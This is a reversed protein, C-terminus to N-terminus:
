TNRNQTSNEHNGQFNPFGRQLDGQFNPFRELLNAFKRGTKLSNGLKRNFNGLKRNVNGLSGTLM